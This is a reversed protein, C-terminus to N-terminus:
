KVHMKGKLKESLRYMRILIEKESMEPHKKKETKIFTKIGEDYYECLMRELIPLPTKKTLEVKSKFDRSIKRQQIRKKIEM